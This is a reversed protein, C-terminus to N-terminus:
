ITEDINPLKGVRFGNTKGHSTFDFKQIHKHIEESYYGQGIKELLEIESRNLQIENQGFDKVVNMYYLVTLFEFMENVTHANFDYDRDLWQSIKTPSGKILYDSTKLKYKNHTHGNDYKSSLRHLM